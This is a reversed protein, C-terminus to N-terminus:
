LFSNRWLAMYGRVLSSISERADTRKTGHALLRDYDTEIHRIHAAVALEIMKQSFEKAMATRGVRGSHKECAHDAIAFERERPMSPFLKRIEAAFTKRYDADVLERKKAAVVRRSARASEDQVCLERANNIQVPDALIGRQEDRKRRANWEVVPIANPCLRKTRVTLATNGSPLFELNDLGDCDLCFKSDDHRIILPVKEPIRCGCKACQTPKRLISAKPGDYVPKVKKQRIAPASAEVTARKIVIRM